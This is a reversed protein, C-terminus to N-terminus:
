REEVQVPHVEEVQVPHVEEMQVPHVHGRHCRDDNDGITGATSSLTCIPPLVSAASLAKDALKDHDTEM